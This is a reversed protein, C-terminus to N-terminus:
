LSVAQLEKWQATLSISATISDLTMGLFQTVQSPGLKSKKKNMQSGLNKM